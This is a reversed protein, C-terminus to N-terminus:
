YSLVMNPRQGYKVGTDDKSHGLQGPLTYREPIFSMRVYKSFSRQSAASHAM